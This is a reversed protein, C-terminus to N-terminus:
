TENDGKRPRVSHAGVTPEHLKPFIRVRFWGILMSFAFDYAAFAILLAAILLIPGVSGATFDYPIAAAFLANFVFYLVAMCASFGLLKLLWGLWPKRLKAQLAEILAKWIPYHGFFCLFWIGATKEPLLLLALAAASASAGAAWGYGCVLVAAAPFLGALAALSLTVRPLLVSGALCIVCLATILASLTLKKTRSM